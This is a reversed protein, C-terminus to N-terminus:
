GLEAPAHKRRGEASPSHTEQECGDDKASRTRSTDKDTPEKGGDDETPEKGGDDETPEASHEREFVSRM